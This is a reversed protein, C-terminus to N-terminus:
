QARWSCLLEPLEIRERNSLDVGTADRLAAKFWLGFEDRSRSLLAAARGLDELELYAILIEGLPTGALYWVAKEIGLRREFRDHQAGRAGNLEQMLRRAHGTRGMLVPLALCVQNVHALRAARHGGRM